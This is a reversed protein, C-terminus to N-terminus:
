THRLKEVFTAIASGTESWTPHNRYTTLGRLGLHLRLEPDWLRRLRAACAHPDGAPTLFGNEGDIVFEQAAGANCAIVPLGHAMAELYAIGFGERLSTLAFVDSQALIHRLAARGQIGAFHVRDTLGLRGIQRHLSRACRPAHSESGVITWTFALDACHKLARALTDYGKIPSINGVSVIRLPRRGRTRQTLARPSMPRGMHNAAPKALVLPKDPCLRRVQAQTDRSNVILGDVTRLYARECAGVFTRQLPRMPGTCRLNHVLAVTPMPLSPNIALLTPHCLEDEILVDLSPHALRQRLECRMWGLLALPYPRSRLTIVDVRHGRQRLQAVVHRDYLYGGTLQGLDGYICLGIRVSHRKPANSSTAPGLM